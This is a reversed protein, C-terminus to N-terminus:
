TTVVGDNNPPPLLFPPKNTDSSAQAESPWSGACSPAMLRCLGTFVVSSSVKRSLIYCSHLWSIFPFQSSSVLQPKQSLGLPLNKIINGLSIQAGTGGRPIAPDRHNLAGPVRIGLRSRLCGQGKQTRSVDALAYLPEFM